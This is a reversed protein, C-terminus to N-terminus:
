CATRRRDPPHKFAKLDRHLRGTPPRIFARAVKEVPPRRGITKQYRHTQRESEARRGTEPVLLAVRADASEYGACHQPPDLSAVAESGEQIADVEPHPRVRRRSDDQPSERKLKGTQARYVVWGGAEIEELLEYDRFHPPRDATDCVRERGRGWDSILLV